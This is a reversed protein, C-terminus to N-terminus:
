ADDEGILWKFNVPQYGCNEPQYIMRAPCKRCQYYKTFGDHVLEWRHWLLCKNDVNELKAKM